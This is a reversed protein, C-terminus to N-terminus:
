RSLRPLSSAMTWGEPKNTLCIFMADFWVVSSKDASANASTSCFISTKDDSCKASHTETRGETTRKKKWDFHRRKEM